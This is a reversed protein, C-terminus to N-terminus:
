LILEEIEVSPVLNFLPRLPFFREHKFIVCIRVSLCLQFNYIICRYDTTYSNIKSYIAFHSGHFPTRSLVNVRLQFLIDYYPLLAGFVSRQWLSAIIELIRSRKENRINTPKFYQIFSTAFRITCSFFGSNM